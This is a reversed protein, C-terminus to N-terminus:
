SCIKPVTLPICTPYQHLLSFSLPWL